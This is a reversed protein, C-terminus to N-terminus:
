KYREYLFVDNSRLGIKKEKKEKIIRLASKYLSLANSYLKGKYFCDGEMIHIDIIEFEQKMQDTFLNYLGKMHNLDRLGEYFDLQYSNDNQIIHDKSSHVVNEIKKANRMMRYKLILRILKSNSADNLIEGLFGDNKFKILLELLDEM